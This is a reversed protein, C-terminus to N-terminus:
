RTNPFIQDQWLVPAWAPTLPLPLAQLLRAGRQSVRHLSVHRNPLHESVPTRAGFGAGAGLAWCRCLSTLSCLYPGLAGVRLHTKRVGPPQCNYGHCGVVGKLATFRTVERPCM